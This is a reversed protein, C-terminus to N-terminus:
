RIPRGDRRKEIATNKGVQERVRDRVAIADKDTIPAERLDRAGALFNRSRDAIQYSVAQEVNGATAATERLLEMIKALDKERRKEREEYGDMRTAVSGLLPDRSRFLEAAKQTAPDVALGVDLGAMLFAVVLAAASMDHAFSEAQKEEVGLERVAASVLQSRLKESFVEPLYKFAPRKPDGAISLPTNELVPATGGGGGGKATLGQVADQHDDHRLPVSTTKDEDVDKQPVAEPTPAPIGDGQPEGPDPSPAPATPGAQEPSATAAPASSGGSSAARRAADSQARERERRLRGDPDTELADEIGNRNLDRAPRGLFSLDPALEDLTAGTMRDDDFNTM